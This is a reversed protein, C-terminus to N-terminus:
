ASQSPPVSVDGGDHSGRAAALTDLYHQNFMLGLVNGFPDLVSATIFGEGRQTLPEYVHAGLALLRALTADLDDVHWYLITGGPSATAAAPAYRRDLLGLEHGYDGIRFEVYAAPGEQPRVFYPEIGLVASYWRGAAAVDDAFFTVTTMGRLM